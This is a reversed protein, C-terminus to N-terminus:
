TIILYICYLLIILFLIDTLTGLPDIRFVEKITKWILKLNNM